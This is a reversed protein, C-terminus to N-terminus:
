SLSSLCAYFWVALFPLDRTREEPVGLTLGWSAGYMQMEERILVVEPWWSVGRAQLRTLTGLFTRSGPCPGELLQSKWM